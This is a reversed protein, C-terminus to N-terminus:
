PAGVRARRRAVYIGFLPAAIFAVVVGIFALVTFHIWARAAAGLVVGMGVGRLLTAPHRCSEDFADAAEIADPM